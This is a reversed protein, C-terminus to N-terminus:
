WLRAGINHIHPATGSTKTIHRKARCLSLKVSINCKSEKVNVILLGAARSIFSMLDMM